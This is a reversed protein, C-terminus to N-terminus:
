RRRGTMSRHRSARLRALDEGSALDTAMLATKTGGIDVGVVVGARAESAEAMVGTDEGGCRSAVVGARTARVAGMGDM